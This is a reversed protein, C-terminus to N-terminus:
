ALKMEDCQNGIWHKKAEKMATQIRNNAERNGKVREAEYWM